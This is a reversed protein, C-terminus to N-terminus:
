LLLRLRDREAELGPLRSRVGLVQAEAYVPESTLAVHDLHASVREIVGDEGRHSGGGKASFGVSLGTVEGAQVLKLADNGRTTDFLSWEGYLGDPREALSLTKGVPHGHDIRDQHGDYLKVQAVQGSSVQRGFVGPLFRERFSAVQAVVGYPVARGYLTRGDGDSRLEMVLAFSRVQLGLAEPPLPRETPHWGRSRGDGAEGAYSGKPGSVTTGSALDKAKAMATARQGATLNSAQPIRALANRLHPLDVKGDPGRVPFMRHAGDTRGGTKTGGPLILLFASDPLDNIAAASWQARLAHLPELDIDPM